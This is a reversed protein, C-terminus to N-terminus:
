DIIVRRKDEPVSKVDKFSKDDNKNTVVFGSERLEREKKIREISQKLKETKWTYYHKESEYEEDVWQQLTKGECLRNEFTLSNKFGEELEFKRYDPFRTIRDLDKEVKPLKASHSVEMEALQYDFKIHLSEKKVDEAWDIDKTPKNVKWDLIQQLTQAM